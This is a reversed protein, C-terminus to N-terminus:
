ALRVVVGQGLEGLDTRVDLERDADGGNVGVLGRDRRSGHHSATPFRARCDRLRDPRDEAVASPELNPGVQGEVAIRTDVGDAIDRVDGGTVLARRREWLQARHGLLRAPPRGLVDQTLTPM